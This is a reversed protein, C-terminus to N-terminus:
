PQLSKPLRKKKAIWYQKVLKSTFLQSTPASGAKLYGALRTSVGNLRPILSYPPRYPPGQGKTAKMPCKKNVEIGEMRDAIKLLIKQVFSSYPNNHRDHFHGDAKDMAALVYLRKFEPKAWRGDGRMENNSPLWVGNEANNVDYGVDSEIKGAKDAFLWDLLPDVQKLSENGPILHHPNAIVTCPERKAQWSITIKWDKPRPLQRDGAMNTELAGSDNGIAADPDEDWNADVITQANKPKSEKDSRCFPCPQDHKLITKVLENIECM